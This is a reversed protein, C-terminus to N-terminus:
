PTAGLMRNVGLLDAETLTGSGAKLRLGSMVTDYRAKSLDRRTQFVQQEANLVDINIRVGVEHGLRNSALAVDSSKLSQELARVQAIGLAQREAASIALTPQAAAM